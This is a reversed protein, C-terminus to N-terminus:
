RTTPASLARRGANHAAIAVGLVESTRTRKAAEAAIADMTSFLDVISAPWSVRSVPARRHRGLRRLRGVPTWPIV